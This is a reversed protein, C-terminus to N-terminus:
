FWGHPQAVFNMAKPYQQVHAEFQSIGVRVPNAVMDVAVRRSWSSNRLWLGGLIGLRLIPVASGRLRTIAAFDEGAYHEFRALLNSTLDHFECAAFDDPRAQPDGYAVRELSAQMIPNRGHSDIITHLANMTLSVENPSIVIEHPITRHPGDYVEISRM